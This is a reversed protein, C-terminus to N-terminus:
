KSGNDLFDNLFREINLCFEKHGNDFAQVILKYTDHKDEYDNYNTLNEGQNEIFGNEGLM